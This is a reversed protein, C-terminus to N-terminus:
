QQNTVAVSNRTGTIQMTYRPELGLNAAMHPVDSQWVIYDGAQWNTIGQGNIEFYHGSKWNEMFVLCRCISDLDRIAFVKQYSLYHDTHLPIVDGTDMRYLSAGLNHWGLDQGLQSVWGPFNDKLNCVAGNLNMNTYGSQFWGEVMAQDKHPLYEYNLNKFWNNWQPEIHNRFWTMNNKMGHGPM